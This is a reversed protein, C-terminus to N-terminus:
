IVHTLVGISIFEIAQHLHKHNQIHFRNSVTDKISVTYM